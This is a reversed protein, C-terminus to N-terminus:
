PRWDLLESVAANEFGTKAAKLVDWAAILAQEIEVDVTNFVGSDEIAQLKANIRIVDARIPQILARATSAKQAQTLEAYAANLKDTIAM